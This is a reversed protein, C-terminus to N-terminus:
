NTTNPLMPTPSTSFTGIFGTYFCQGGGDLGYYDICSTCGGACIYRDEVVLVQITPDGKALLFIRTYYSYSSVEHTEILVPAPTSYNGFFICSGIDYQEVITQLAVYIWHDTTKMDNINENFNLSCVVTYNSSYYVTIARGIAVCFFPASAEVIFKPSITLDIGPFNLTAMPVMNSTNFIYLNAQGAVSDVVLFYLTLNNYTM